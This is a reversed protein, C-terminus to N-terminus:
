RFGDVGASLRRGLTCGFMCDPTCNCALVNSARIERASAKSSGHCSRNERRTRREAWEYQAAPGRVGDPDTRRGLRLYRADAGRLRHRAAEAFHASCSRRGTCRSTCPPPKAIRAM